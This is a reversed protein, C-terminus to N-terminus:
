AAKIKGRSYTGFSLRVVRWQEESLKPPHDTFHQKWEEITTPQRQV